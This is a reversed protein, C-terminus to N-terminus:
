CVYINYFVFYIDEACANATALCRGKGPFRLQDRGKGYCVPAEATELVQSPPSQPLPISTPEVVTWNRLKLM